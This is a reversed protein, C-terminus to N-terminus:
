SAADERGARRARRRAAVDLLDQVRARTAELTPLVEAGNWASQFVGLMMAGYQPWVRTRPAVVVDPSNVIAEHVAVSRNPHTAHFRPSVTRLPSPKAHATALAEQIDRRQMWRLFTWAAEPERAGRPIMVVDAELMGTPRAADYTAATVPVPVAAYDLEPVYARIFNAMWPGQVIMSLRGALFPDQASSFSRGYGAAFARVADRGYRVPHAAVWAYAAVNERDTLTATNTAEDYLRGRFPIPWFYPWWDPLSPLFGVRELRGDPGGQTLREGAADLEPVTRPLVHPDLGADAFHARNCYLAMTHCTTVGAWRRGAWTLMRWVAPAYHAAGIEDAGPLDDLPRIANSEAYQPINYNFLGVLDPPDGGGIAVLAKTTIDSVPVRRVWIDAQETNFRDVLAQLADGERGTWKEWYTVVTRGAPVDRESRPTRPWLAFGAGATALAGLVARRGRDVASM